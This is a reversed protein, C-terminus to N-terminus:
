SPIQALYAEIQQIRNGIDSADGKAHTEKGQQEVIMELQGRVFQYQQESCAQMAVKQLSELLRITVSVNSQAQQRIQDFAASGLDQYCLAKRHIRVQGAKDKLEVSPFQRTTIDCLISSLKDICTIATYPDNISPSLARLAIEVLQHIAFEPDQVPTRTSGLVIHKEINSATNQAQTDTSYLCGIISGKPIYDGASFALKLRQDHKALHEILASTDILQVYGSRSSRLATENCYQEDKLEVTPVQPRWKEDDVYRPFFKAVSAKLECYVDNVVNDAQISKAVHHIFHILFGLCILTMLMAWLFSTAPIIQYPPALSIACYVLVCYLFNSTFVGLVIQTTKDMMFNRMLRPGFQSSAMTLSVITISFAISTVTIMSAAITALISRAASLNMSYIFPLMEQLLVSARADVTVTLVAMLITLLLIISPVFWFNAQVSEILPALKRKFM